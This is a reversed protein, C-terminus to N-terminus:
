ADIRRDHNNITWSSRSLKASAVCSRDRQRSRRSMTFKRTGARAEALTAIDNRADRLWVRFTSLRLALCVRGFALDLGVDLSLRQRRDVLDEIPRIM